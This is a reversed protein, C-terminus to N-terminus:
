IQLRGPPWSPWCSPPAQALRQVRHSALLPVRSALAVRDMRSHRRHRQQAPWERDSLKATRAQAKPRISLTPAQQIPDSAMAAALTAFRIPQVLGTSACVSSPSVGRFRRTPVISWPQLKGFLMFGM